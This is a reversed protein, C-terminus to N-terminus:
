TGRHISAPEASRDARDQWWSGHSRNELYWSRILRVWSRTPEVNRGDFFGNLAARAARMRYFPINPLYHHILHYEGADFLFLWDEVPGCRFRSAISYSNDPQVEAHEVLIRMANLLPLVVLLPLLYGFMIAKPDIFLAVIAAALIALSLAAETRARKLARPTPRRLAFYPRRGRGMTGSAAWRTGVFTMFVAKKFRSDLDRKYAEADDESAVREHHAWHADAYRTASLQIPATFLMSLLHGWKGGVKRHVFYEHNFLGFWQLVIGQMIAMVMLWGWSDIQFCGWVIALSALPLGVILSRDLWPVPRHLAEIAQPGLFRRVESQRAALGSVANSMMGSGAASSM